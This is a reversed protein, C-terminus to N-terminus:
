VMRSVRAMAILEEASPGKYGTVRSVAVAKKTQELGAAEALYSDNRNGLSQNLSGAAVYYNDIHNAGGNSEAIIHCVHQDANLPFGNRERLKRFQTKSMFDQARLHSPATYFLSASFLDFGLPSSRWPTATPMPIPATAAAYAIPDAAKMAGLEKMTALKERLAAAEREAEAVRADREEKEKVKRAKEEAAALAAEQAKKERAAEEQEIKAIEAKLRAVEAMARAPADAEWAAARAPADAEWQARAKEVQARAGSFEDAFITEVNCYPSLSGYEGKASLLAKEAGDFNGVAAAKVAAEFFPRSAQQAAAVSLQPICVFGEMQPAKVLINQCFNPVPWPAM